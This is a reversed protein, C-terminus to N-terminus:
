GRRRKHVRVCRQKGHVRKKRFGSRCHLPRPKSVTPASAIFVPPPIATSPKSQTLRADIGGISGPATLNLPSAGALSAQEDYFRTEFGDDEGLFLEEGFFERGLELSFGVKYSGTALPSVSYQGFVGTEDCLEPELSTAEVACVLIEGLPTGSSTLVTGKIAGGVELTADVESRRVGLTGIVPDAEPAHRRQDFYQTAYRGTAEFEVRFEGAGAFRIAYRGDKGTSACLGTEAEPLRWACVEDEDIPQGQGAVTGTIMAAPTLEADVGTFPGGVITVPGEREQSFYPLGVPRFQVEYSGDELEEIAYAGGAGTTACKEAREGEGEETEVFRSACVEVGELGSRTDAATV